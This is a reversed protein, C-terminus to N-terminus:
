SWLPSIFYFTIVGCIALKAGTGLIFGVFSGSASRLAKSSAKGALIEGIFAGLFPGIITGPLAFFIMGVLLGMTAGWTGSKSGGLKKTLYVPFFFDLVTVLVVAIGLVLMLTGSYDAYKSWEMLWLGLYSLPPGPLIPAICGVFGLLLFIAGFVVLIIDM